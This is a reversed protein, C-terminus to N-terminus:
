SELDTFRDTLWDHRVVFMQIGDRPRKQPELEPEACSSDPQLVLHLGSLGSAAQWAVEDM